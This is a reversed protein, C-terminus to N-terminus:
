TRAWDLINDPDELELKAQGGGFLEVFTEEFSESLLKFQQAFIATMQETIERIIGTLEGKAKDVDDRQGTLYTYRGNVREFEEIAGVNITGLANIASYGAGPRRKNAAAFSRGARKRVLDVTHRSTPGHGM